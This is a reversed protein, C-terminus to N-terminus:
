LKIAFNCKTVLQKKNNELRVCVFQVCLHSEMLQILVGAFVIIRYSARKKGKSDCGVSFIGSFASSGVINNSKRKERKM